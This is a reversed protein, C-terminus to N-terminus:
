HGTTDNAHHQQQGCRSRLPRRRGLGVPAVKDPAIDFVTVEFGHDLLRESMPRGMLGIGIFGIAARGEAM